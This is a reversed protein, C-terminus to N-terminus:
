KGRAPKGFGQAAAIAPTFPFGIGGLVGWGIGWGLSGHNRKYGHYASLGVSALVAVEVVTQLTSKPAAKEEAGVVTIPGGFLTAHGQHVLSM